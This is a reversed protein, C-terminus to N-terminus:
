YGWKVRVKGLLGGIRFSEHRVAVVAIHRCLGALEGEFSGFRVVQNVDHPPLLAVSDDKEVASPVFQVCPDLPQSATFGLKRNELAAGHVPLQRYSDRERRCEGFPITLSPHDFLRDLEANRPKDGELARSADHGCLGFREVPEPAGDDFRRLLAASISQHFDGVRGREAVQHYRHRRGGYSEHGM